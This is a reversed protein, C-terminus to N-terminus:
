PNKDCGIPGTTPKRLPHTSLHGRDKRSSSVSRHARWCAKKTVRCSTLRGHDQMTCWPLLVVALVRFLPVGFPNTNLPRAQLAVSIPANARIPSPDKRCHSDGRCALSVLTYATESSEAKRALQPGPQKSKSPVKRNRHTLRRWLYSQLFVRHRPQSPHFHSAHPLRPLTQRLPFHWNLLRQSM